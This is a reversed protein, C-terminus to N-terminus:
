LPVTSGSDNMFPSEAVIVTFPVGISNSAISLQSVTVSSPPFLSEEEDDNRVTEDEVTKKSETITVRTPLTASIANLYFKSFDLSDGCYRREM